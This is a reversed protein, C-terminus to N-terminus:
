LFFYTYKLETPELSEEMIFNIFHSSEKVTFGAGKPLM